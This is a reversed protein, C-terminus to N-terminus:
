KIQGRVEGGPYRNTHVNVYTNGNRMEAMLADLDGAFAGVVDDDTIVGESLIGDQEELFPGPFLAAVVGGNSGAAAFHIHSARVSDINSVILKFHLSSGDKSLNFIAEGTARTDSAPVEQGGSLHARFNFGPKAFASSQVEAPQDQMFNTPTQNECGVFLLAFLVAFAFFRM